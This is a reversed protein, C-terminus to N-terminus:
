IPLINGLHPQLSQMGYIVLQVGTYSGVDQPVQLFCVADVGGGELSYAFIDVLYYEYINEKRDKALM